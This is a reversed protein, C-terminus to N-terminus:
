MRSRRGAAGSGGRRARSRSRARRPCARRARCPSTPPATRRRAPASRSRGPPERTGRGSPPARRSRSRRGSRARPGCRTPGGPPPCPRGRATRPRAARRTGPCSGRGPPASARAHEPVTMRHGRDAVGVLVDVRPTARAQPVQEVEARLEREGVPGPRRLEREVRVEAGTGPDELRGVAHDVRQRRVLAGIGVLQQARPVAVALPVDLDRAYSCSIASASPTASRACASWASPTAQRSM